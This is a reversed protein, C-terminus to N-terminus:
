TIKIENIFTPIETETKRMQGQAAIADIFQAIYSFTEAM